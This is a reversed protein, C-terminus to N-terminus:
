MNTSTAKQWNTGNYFCITHLTTNYYQEGEIPSVIANIETTTKNSIQSKNSIDDTLAITKPTVGVDPIFLEGVNGTQIGARLSVGTAGSANIFDVGLSSLATTSSDDNNYVSILNTTNAGRDTTQQLDSMLGMNNRGKAM